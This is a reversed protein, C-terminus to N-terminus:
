DLLKIWGPVCTSNGSVPVLRIIDYGKDAALETVTVVRPQMGSGGGVGVRVTDLINKNNSFIV